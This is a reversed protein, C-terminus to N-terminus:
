EIEEGDKWEIYTDFPKFVGGDPPVNEDVSFCMTFGLGDDMYDVKGPIGGFHETILKGLSHLFKKYQDSDDILDDNITDAVIILMEKDTLVKAM